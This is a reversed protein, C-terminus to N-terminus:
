PRRKTILSSVPASSLVTSLKREAREVESKLRKLARPDMQFVFNKLMPASSDTKVRFQIIPILEEIETLDDSLSPRLDVFTSFNTAAPLFGWRLREHKNFKEVNTQKRLLHSLRRSIIESQESSPREEDSEQKALSELMEKVFMPINSIDVSDRHIRQYLFGIMSIIATATEEDVGLAPSLASIREKEVDFADPGDIEIALRDFAENSLGAVELLVSTFSPPQLPKTKM